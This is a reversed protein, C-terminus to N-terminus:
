YFGSWYLPCVCLGWAELRQGLCAPCTRTGIGIARGQAQTAAGIAWSVTPRLQSLHTFAQLRLEWELRCVGLPLGTPTWVSSSLAPCHVPAVPPALQPGLVSGPTSGKM